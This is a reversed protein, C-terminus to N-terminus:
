NKGHNGRKLAQGCVPCYNSVTVLILRAGCSPCGKRTWEADPNQQIDDMQMPIRKQLEAEMIKMAWPDVDVSTKIHDICRQIREPDTM